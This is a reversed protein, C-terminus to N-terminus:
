REDVRPRSAFDDCKREALQRRAGRRRASGWRGLRGTRARAIEWPANGSRVPSRLLHEVEDADAVADARDAVGARPPVDTPFAIFSSSPTDDDARHDRADARHDRADSAEPVSPM